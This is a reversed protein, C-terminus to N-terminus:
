NRINYTIENGDIVIEMRLPQKGNVVANPLTCGFCYHGEYYPGIPFQDAKDIVFMKNQIGNLENWDYDKIENDWNYQWFWGAYEVDDDFVVKVEVSALYDRETKTSNLIDAKLVLYDAEAGSDFMNWNGAVSHKGQKYQYLTNEFKCSTLTITGWGDVQASEELKLDDLSVPETEAQSGGIVQVGMEALAGSCGFLLTLVLLASLIKKM